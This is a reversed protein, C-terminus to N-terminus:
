VGPAAERARLAEKAPGLESWAQSVDPEFLQHFYIAFAPPLMPRETVQPSAACAFIAVPAAHFIRREHRGADFDGLRRVESL